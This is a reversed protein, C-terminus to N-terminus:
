FCCLKLIKMAENRLMPKSWFFIVSNVNSNLVAFAMAWSYIMERTEPSLSKGAPSTLVISPLYSLCFTCIVLFCSKALKFENLLCYKGKMGIATRTGFTNHSYLSRRATVFISTYAFALFIFCILMMLFVFINVIKVSTNAATSFSSVPGYLYCSRVVNM